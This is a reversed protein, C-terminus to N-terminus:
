RVGIKDDYSKSKDRDSTATLDVDKLFKLEPDIYVIKNLEQFLLILSMNLFVNKFIVTLGEFTPIIRESSISNYLTVFM